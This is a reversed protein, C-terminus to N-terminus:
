TWYRVSPAWSGTAAVRWSAWPIGVLLSLLVAALTLGLTDMSEAVAWCGFSLFGTLVLLGIRWGCWVLGLMTAATTVGLWSVETLVTRLGTALGAVLARVVDVLFVLVPNSARNLDVWRRVDDLVGFAAHPRRAAADSYGPV